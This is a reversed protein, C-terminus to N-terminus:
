ALQLAAKEMFDVKQTGTGDRYPHTSVLTAREDIISCSHKIQPWAHSPRMM